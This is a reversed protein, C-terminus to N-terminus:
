GNNEARLKLPLVFWFTSGANPESNVGIAGGMMEVMRMSLALGLGTGGHRRTTSGDVQVFLKFLKQQDESSIGPGTDKVAFKVFLQDGDHREQTASVEIEGVDTFKVANQILNMLVQRIRAAVGIFEGQVREDIKHSLKLNKNLSNIYFMSLVDDIIDAIRFPEEEMDLYGAELKSLDLLDNVLSMLNKACNYVHEATTKLTGESEDKMLESLGLIGGMPTRIEHSINAVFQSKLENARVAEDRAAALEATREGVKTELSTNLERVEAYLRVLEDNKEKLETNLEHLMTQNKSIVDLALLLEQNQQHAEDLPTSAVIETLSNALQDIEAGSFPLARPPLVKEMSITTGSSSSDISLADVLNRAGRLGIHKPQGVAILESQPIGPGADQVLVTFTFPSKRDAICFEVKGGGAHVHANRAIESVATSVRTQDQESFGLLLAIQRARRRALLVDNATRLLITLLIKM